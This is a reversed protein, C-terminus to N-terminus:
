GSRHGFRNVADQRIGVYGHLRQGTRLMGFVDEVANARDGRVAIQVHVVDADLVEGSPEMDFLVDFQILPHRELFGM